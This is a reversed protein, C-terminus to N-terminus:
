QVKKKMIKMFLVMFIFIVMVTGIMMWMWCKCARNNHEELKESEKKLSGFNKDSVKTSNQVAEIDRKLIKNSTVTQDKM